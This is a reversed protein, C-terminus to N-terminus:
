VQEADTSVMPVSAQNNPKQVSFADVVPTNGIELDQEGCVYTAEIPDNLDIWGLLDNNSMNTFVVDGPDSERVWDLLWERLLQDREAATPFVRCGVRENLNEGEWALTFVKIKM